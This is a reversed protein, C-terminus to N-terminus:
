DGSVASFILLIELPFVRFYANERRHLLTPWRENSFSLFLCFLFFFFFSAALNPPDHFILFIRLSSVPLPDCNFDDVNRANWGRRRHSRSEARQSTASLPQLVADNNVRARMLVM